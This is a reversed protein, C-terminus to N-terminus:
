VCSCDLDVQRMAFLQEHHQAIVHRNYTHVETESIILVKSESNGLTKHILVGKTPSVPYYVEFNEPVTFRELGTAFLNVVPQDSTVFRTKSDNLILTIDFGKNFLNLAINLSMIHRLPNWIKMLSDSHDPMKELTMSKIKDQIGKTRLMQLSIFQLFNLRETKDAWFYCCEARLQEIYQFSRNEVDSHIDEELNNVLIDLNKFVVDTSDKSAGRLEALKEIIRKGTHPMSFLEVIKYQIEKVEEPMEFSQIFAKLLGIEQTELEHIKYFDRKQAVDKINILYRAGLRDCWVQDDIAWGSLYYRWVYHQKRKMNDFSSM